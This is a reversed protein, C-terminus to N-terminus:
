RRVRVQYFYTARSDSWNLDIRLVYLGTEALEVNFLYANASGRTGSVIPAFTQRDLFAYAMSQPREGDYTVTVASGLVAQVRDADLANEVCNETGDPAIRCFITGAPMYNIGAVRLDIPPAGTPTPSPTFTPTPTNTPTNSPTFTPTPTFTASPTFTPTPTFTHTPTPTNTPTASPTFTDTPLPTDSPPATATATPSAESVETAETTAVTTAEPTDQSADDPTDQPTVEPTDQPSDDLTATAQAATSQAVNIAFVSAINPQTGAVNNYYATVELVHPGPGLNAVFPEDPELAINLLPNGNSDTERSTVIIRDPHPADDGEVVVSLLDGATIALVDEPEALATNAQIDCALNDQGQPWCIVTALGDTAGANSALRLRPQVPTAFGDGGDDAGGCAALLLILLLGFWINKKMM